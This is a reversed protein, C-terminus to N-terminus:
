RHEAYLNLQQRINYDPTTLNWFKIANSKTDGTVPMANVETGSDWLIIQSTVDGTVPTNDIFLNKENKEAANTITEEGYTNGDKNCSFFTTLSIFTLGSIQISKM